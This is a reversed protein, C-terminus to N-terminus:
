RQLSKLTGKASEVAAIYVGNNDFFLTQWKKIATGLWFNSKAIGTIINVIKLLSLVNKIRLSRIPEFTVPVKIFPHTKRISSNCQSPVACVAQM